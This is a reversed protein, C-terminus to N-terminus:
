LIHGWWPVKHLAILTVIKSKSVLPYIKEFM